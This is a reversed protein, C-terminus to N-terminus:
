GPTFREANRGPKVAVFRCFAEKSRERAPHLDVSGLVTLQAIALAKLFNVVNTAAWDRAMVTAEACSVSYRTGRLKHLESRTCPRRSLM